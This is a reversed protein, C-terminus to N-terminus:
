NWEQGQVTSQLQLEWIFCLRGTSIEKNETERRRQSMTDKGATALDVEEGLQPRIRVCYVGFLCLFRLEAGPSPHAALLLPLPQPKDCDGGLGATGQARWRPHGRTGEGASGVGALHGWLWLLAPLSM